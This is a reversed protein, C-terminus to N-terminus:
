KLVSVIGYILNVLYILVGLGYLLVGFWSGGGLAIVLGTIILALGAIWLLLSIKFANSKKGKAVLIGFPALGALCLLIGIIKETGIANSSKLNEKRKDVGLRRSFHTPNRSSNFSSTSKHLTREFYREIPNSRTKNALPYANNSKSEGINEKSDNNFDVLTNETEIQHSPQVEEHSSNESVNSTTLDKVKTESINEKKSKTHWTIKYGKPYIKREISCSNLILISTLILFLTKSLTKM